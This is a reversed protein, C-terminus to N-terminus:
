ITKTVRRQVEAEVADHLGFRKARKWLKKLQFINLERLKHPKDFEFVLRDEVKKFTINMIKFFKRLEM